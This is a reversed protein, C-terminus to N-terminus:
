WALGPLISKFKLPEKVTISPAIPVITIYGDKFYAYDSDRIDPSYDPGFVPAATRMAGTALSSCSSPLCKMEGAVKSGNLVVVDSQVAVRVGAVAATGPYSIVLGVGRPLLGAESALFGPKTQLHAVFGVIFNAVTQYHATKCAIDCDPEDTGVALAPVPGNLPATGAHVAAGVTGSLLENLGLNANTNIGSILLDVPQGSEAAIALAVYACNAPKAGMALNSALAVSYTREGEKRVKLAGQDFAMSGGSQDTLSAALTVTHGAGELAAKMVQIGLANYGDDNTLAINLASVPTALAVLCAGLVPMLITRRRM